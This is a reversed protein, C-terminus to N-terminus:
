YAIGLIVSSFDRFSTLSISLLMIMGCIKTLNVLDDKSNKFKTTM